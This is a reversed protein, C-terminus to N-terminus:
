SIARSRHIHLIPFISAMVMGSSFFAVVFSNSTPKRSGITIPSSSQSRSSPSQTVAITTITIPHSPDHNEHKSSIGPAPVSDSSNRNARRGPLVPEAASRYDVTWRYGLSRYCRRHRRRRRRLHHRRRRSLRRQRTSDKEPLVSKKM